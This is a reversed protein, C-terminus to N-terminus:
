ILLGDRQDQYREFRLKGEVTENWMSIPRAWVNGDIDHYIVLEEESETHKALGTAKYSAGKYHKYFGKDIM